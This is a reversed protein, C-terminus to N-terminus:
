VDRHDEDRASDDKASPGNRGPIYRKSIRKGILGYVVGLVALAITFIIEFEEVRKVFTKAALGFIFGVWVFIGAWVAATILNYRIFRGFRISSMGCLVPM